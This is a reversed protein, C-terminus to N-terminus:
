ASGSATALWCTGRFVSGSTRIHCVQHGCEDTCCTCHRYGLRGYRGLSVQEPEFRLNREAIDGPPDIVQRKIGRTVPQENGLKAVVRDADDIDIGALDDM